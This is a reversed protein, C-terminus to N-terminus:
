PNRCWFAHLISEKSKDNIKKDNEDNNANNFGIPIAGIIRDSVSSKFIISYLLSIRLLTKNAIIINSINAIM